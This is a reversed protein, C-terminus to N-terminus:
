IFDHGATLYARKNEQYSNQNSPHRKDGGVTHRKWPSGDHGCVTLLISIHPIKNYRTSKLEIDDRM